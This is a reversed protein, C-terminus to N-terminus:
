RSALLLFRRGDNYTTGAALPLRARERFGLPGAVGIGRAMATGPLSWVYLGQTQALSPAPLTPLNPPAPM